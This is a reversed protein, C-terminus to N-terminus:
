AARLLVSVNNGGFAFSNSLVRKFSGHTVQTPIRLKIAPDIPDAGLSPPIWGETLALISFAAECAGAGGLMHGTFGKTSIVPLEHGFVRGIAKAEASDNLKTGTGHANVHDVSEAKVGAMALAREMAVQAGTGEPHPASIHYADSSEGVAELLAMADGGREMILLAGGEGISIGKRASSFPQCPTPALADLCFFGRLTMGCLTDIGGVIVADLLGSAIMRQASALPKASSTCATSVVWGPGRAGSLSSVVHLIAGYTHHRWLDYNAPLAGQAVYHRYADETVDAGATSTGLIIGIREPRVRKRLGELQPTLQHLLLQALQATRTGWGSLEDPLPALADRIAGVATPFPVPIPSPGLGTRGERLAGAIAKTTTGLANCVAFGTVPIPPLSSLM